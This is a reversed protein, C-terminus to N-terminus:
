LSYVCRPVKHAEMDCTGFYANAYLNNINENNDDCVTPHAKNRDVLRAVESGVSDLGKVVIHKHDISKSSFLFQQLARLSYFVGKAQAKAYADTDVSFLQQCSQELHYKFDYDLKQSIYLIIEDKYMLLNEIFNNIASLKNKYLVNITIVGASYNLGAYCFKKDVAKAYKITTDIQQNQSLNKM